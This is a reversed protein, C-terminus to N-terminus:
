TEFVQRPDRRFHRGVADRSTLGIQDFFEVLPVCLHRSIGVRERLERLNLRRQPDQDALAKAALALALLQATPIFYDAGVAHVQGMRQLRQLTRLVLDPRLRPDRQLLEGLKPPHM